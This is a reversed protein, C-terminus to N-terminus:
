DEPTSTRVRALATRARALDLRVYAPLHGPLIRLTWRDPIHIRREILADATAGIVWWVVVLVAFGLLLTMVM